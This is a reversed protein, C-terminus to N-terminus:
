KLDTLEEDHGFSLVPSKKHKLEKWVITINGDDERRVIRFAVLLDARNDEELKQFMMIPHDPAYSGTALRRTVNNGNKYAVIRMAYTTGVEPLVVKSYRVGESEIGKLLLAFQQRAAPVDLAPEFANLFSVQSSSAQLDLLPIDGIRAVIIQSFFSDGILKGDNFHLDPTIAGDRFSYSSGGPVHRACEGDVRVSMRSECNSNPFLKFIGTGSMKLLEQNALVDDPNPTLLAKIRKRDAETLSPAQEHPPQISQRAENEAQRMAARQQSEMARQIQIQRYAAEDPNRPQRRLDPPLSQLQGVVDVTLLLSVIVLAINLAAHSRM